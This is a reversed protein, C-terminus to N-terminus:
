DSKGFREEMWARRAKILLTYPMIEGGHTLSAAQARDHGGFAVIGSGMPTSIRDPDAFLFFAESARVWEKTGHDHVYGDVVQGPQTKWHEFDLMCGIDDFMAYEHVGDITLLFASSCREENILMGCEACEDRGPRMTPPGDLVRSGCGVLSLVCAAVGCNMFRLV